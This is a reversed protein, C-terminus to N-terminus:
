AAQGLPLPSTVSPNPRPLITVMIVENSTEMGIPQAINPKTNQVRTPSEKPNSGAIFAALSFGISASCKSYFCLNMSAKGCNASLNPYIVINPHFSYRNSPTFKTKPRLCKKLIIVNM